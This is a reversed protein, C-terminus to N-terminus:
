NSFTNNFKDVSNDLTNYNKNIKKHHIFHIRRQKRFWEYQELFSDKTHIQIHIQDDLLAHAILQSAVCLFTQYALLNYLVISIIFAVPMYALVGESNSLYKDSLLRNPTYYENHHLM